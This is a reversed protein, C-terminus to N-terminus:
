GLSEQGNHYLWCRHLSVCWDLVGHWTIRIYEGDTDGESKPITSFGTDVVQPYGSSTRSIRLWMEQSADIVIPDELCDLRINGASEQHGDPYKFVLGTIVSSSATRCLRVHTVNEVQATTYFYEEDYPFRPHRSPPVPMYNRMMTESVPESAVAHIGAPSESVFFPGGDNPEAKYLLDYAAGTRYRRPFVGILHSRGVNTSALLCFNTSDRPLRRQWIETIVEGKRLPIYIWLACPHSLLIDKYYSLDEGYTHAKLTLIRHEWCFSCGTVNEDLGLAAMKFPASSKTLTTLLFREPSPQPTAWFVNDNPTHGAGPCILRRLKSGDTQGELESGLVKVTRWWLGPKPRDSTEKLSGAFRVERVGLHDGAVYVAQIPANPQPLSVADPWSPENSLSVIYPIGELSAFRAWVPKSLEIRFNTASNNGCFNKIVLSAYERICYQAIIGCVECPLRFALSRCIMPGLCSRIWRLRRVTESPWPDYAYSTADSLRPASKYDEHRVCDVHYGAIREGLHRCEPYCPEYVYADDTFGAFPLTVSHGDPRLVIIEEESALDFRCLGCRPIICCLDEM